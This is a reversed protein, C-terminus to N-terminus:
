AERRIIMVTLDDTRPANARFDNLDKLLVRLIETPPLMRRQHLLGTIREIGYQEGASNFTESLGDSYVLLSDGTALKVQHSSYEGECFMGLPLGTSAIRSVSGDHCHLPYCHGANCIDVEGNTGLSGCVLTAFFSSLTGECFVRNAKAV